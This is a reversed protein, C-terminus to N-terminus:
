DGERSSSQHELQAIEYISRLGNAEALRLLYSTFSELPQPQPHLPLRKWIARERDHWPETVM